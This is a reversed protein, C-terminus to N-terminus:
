THKPTVKTIMLVVITRRGAAPWNAAVASGAAGAPPHGSAGPEDLLMTVLEVRNAVGLKAFVRHLTLKVTGETIGLEAGIDRNRMGRAVLRVIARERATLTRMPGKDGNGGRALELARQLVSRDIWQRGALVERLCSLILTEAGDKLVIGQVKLDIAEVLDADGIHATLLVVARMDHRARLTRLVDMGSRNPMGIDLLLITPRAGAIAELAEAGDRARAVVEFESGQLVGEIGSLMLPHDDAILVRTM